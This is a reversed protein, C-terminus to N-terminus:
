KKAFLAMIDLAEAKPKSGAPPKAGDALFIVKFTGYSGFRLEAKRKGEEAEKIAKSLEIQAIQARGQKSLIFNGKADLSKVMEGTADYKPCFFAYPSVNVKQALAQKIVLAVSMPEAAPIRREATVGEGNRLSYVGKSDPILALTEPMTPAKAQKAM